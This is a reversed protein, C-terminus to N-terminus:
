YLVKGLMMITGLLRAKSEQDCVLNLHTTLTEPFLTRDYVYSECPVLSTNDFSGAQCSPNDELPKYM